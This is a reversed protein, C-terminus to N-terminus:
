RAIPNPLPVASTFTMIYNWQIAHNTFGLGDRQPAIKTVAEDPNSLESPYIPPNAYPYAFSGVAEGQQILTVATQQATIQKVPPGNQLEVVVTRPGGNGLRTIRESYAVLSDGDSLIEEGELVIRFPLATAFHAKAEEQFWALQRIRVGLPSDLVYAEAGDDQLLVARRGEVALNAEILRRRTEIAASNAALIEGEVTWTRVIRDAMGRPTYRRQGGNFTILCEADEFRFSGYQFRM